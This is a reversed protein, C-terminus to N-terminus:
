MGQSGPKARGPDNHLDSLLLCHLIPFTGVVGARTSEGVRDGMAANGKRLAESFRISAAEAM